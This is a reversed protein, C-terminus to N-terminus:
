DSRSIFKKVRIGRPWFKEDLAIGTQGALVSLRFSKYRAAPHSIKNCGGIFLGKQKCYDVIEKESGSEVKFVFIDRMSQQAGQLRERKQAGFSGGGSDGKNGPFHNSRKNRSYRSNGRTTTFIRSRVASYDESTYNNSVKTSSDAESSNIVVFNDSYENSVKTVIPDTHVENVTVKSLDNLSYCRKRETSVNRTELSLPNGNEIQCPRPPSVSELEEQVILPSHNITSDVKVSKNSECENRRDIQEVRDQTKLIDIRQNTLIEEHNKVKEELNRVRELMYTLNLEEPDFSPIRNLNQSLFVFTVDAADLDRLAKLIDVINADIAPRKETSKRDQFSSPISDQFNDWLVKKAEYIEDVTYFNLATKKIQEHSFRDLYFSFFSLVENIIM